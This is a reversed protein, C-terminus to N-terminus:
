QLLSRGLLPGEVGVWAASGGHAEHAHALGVSVDDRHVADVELDLCALEEGQEPRRARALRRRQTQDRAELARILAVDLQAASIDRVRRGVRAVDVRDELVVSEERVHRDGLVDAVAQPDAAHRALLPLCAHVLYEAPHPKGVDALALGPLEGAALALPHREGAREDVPGLHQEEVLREAREVQLQALLHLEEQLAQLLIERDREDVDRV